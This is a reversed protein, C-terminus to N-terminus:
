YGKVIEPEFNSGLAYRDGIAINVLHPFFPGTPFLAVDGKDLELVKSLSPFVLEGMEFQTLYSLCNFQVIRGSDTVERDFHEAAPGTWVSIGSELYKYEINIRNSKLWSNVLGSIKNIHYENLVVLYNTSSGGFSVDMIHDSRLSLIDNIEYDSWFKKIHWILDNM